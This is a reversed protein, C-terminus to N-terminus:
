SVIWYEYWRLITVTLFLGNKKWRKRNIRCITALRLPAGALLIFVFRHIFRSLPLLDIFTVFCAAKNSSRVCCDEVISKLNSVLFTFLFFNMGTESSNLQLKLSIWTCEMRIQKFFQDLKVSTCTFNPHLVFSTQMFNQFM